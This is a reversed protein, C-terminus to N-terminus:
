STYPPPDVIVREIRQYQVAGGDAGTVAIKEGFIKPLCKALLWKYTDVRLRSRNIHDHNPVIDIKGTRANEREMWDNSGDNAIDLIEDAMCMYGIERARKYRAAFGDRDDLAWGRVSAESPMDDSRCIERLTQGATLKGLISDALEPSYCVAM